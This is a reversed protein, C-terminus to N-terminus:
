DQPPLWHQPEAAGREIVFFGNAEVHQWPGIEGDPWQVRVDAGAASGLGVHTWGLEGSAHGGGVVSERRMVADGVRVEIWAGIADPNPAPQSLRIALWRGAQTPAGPEGTGLNRWLKVPEGFNVEVLDLLGDLNFDALSAGRGLAYSLIGATDAAEGFTGDPRGLLLNSPDKAAFDPLDKM